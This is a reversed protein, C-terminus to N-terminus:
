SETKQWYKASSTQVSVKACFKNWNEPAHNSWLVTMNPEPAPGLNYLTHLYRFSTKTVLPRGDVGMGGLSETVWTPDGSFLENYEPTRLFRIIRLKIIFQDILEQAESETLKGEAMDRAIFIDLFTSTRGISMAAGDQDKTAALYAFYVWQVAERANEAPRRVDFGYSECMRVFAELAKIQDSIEERYRIDSETMESVDLQLMAANREQILNDVGYLAVRRYDGIIRGRGWARPGAWRWWGGACRAGACM